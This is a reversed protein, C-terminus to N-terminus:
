GLATEANGQMRSLLDFAQGREAPTFGAFLVDNMQEYLGALHDLAQGKETTNVVIIRGDTDHKRRVVLGREVMRDIIRSTAPLGTGILEALAGVPLEGGRWLCSLIAWQPLSLGHPELLKQCLANTRGATFNLQRGISLPPTVKKTAM